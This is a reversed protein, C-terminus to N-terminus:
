HGRRRLMLVCGLGALALCSPEPISIGLSALAQDFSFDTAAGYGWNDGIIQLDALNVNGDGSFDAQSWSASASQWNDGLIQLDALNVLGDGNADGAHIVTLRFDDLAGELTTRFFQFGVNSINPTGLYAVNTLVNIGNVVLSVTDAASNYTLQVHNYGDADPSGPIASKIMTNDAGTGGLAGFVAIEDSRTTDQRMLLWTDGAAYCSGASDLFGIAIWNDIGNSNFSKIRAEITAVEGTNMNLPLSAYTSLSTLNTSYVYGDTGSGNQGLLYDGTGLWLGGGEETYTGALPDGPDRSTNGGANNVAFSDYYQSSPPPFPNNNTIFTNAMLQAYPGYQDTELHWTDRRIYPRSDVAVGYNFDLGIQTQVDRLQNVLVKHAETLNNNIGYDIISMCFDIPASLGLDQQLMDLMGLYRGRYASVEGAYDTDSEGQFWFFGRFVPTDGNQIVQAITQQLLGTGSPNYFDNLYNIQKSYSGDSAELVWNAITEGPHRAHVLQLNQYYGSGALVSLINTAWPDYVANSQGGAYFIDVNSATAQPAAALLMFCLGFMFAVFRYGYQPQQM